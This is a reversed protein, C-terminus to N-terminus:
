KIIPTFNHFWVECGEINETSISYLSMFPMMGRWILDYSINHVGLSQKQHLPPGQLSYVTNFTWDIKINYKNWGGKHIFYKNGSHITAM